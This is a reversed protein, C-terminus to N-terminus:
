NVIVNPCGNANITGIALLGNSGSSNPSSNQGDNDSLDVACSDSWDNVGTLMNLINNIQTSDRIINGSLGFRTFGTVRGRWIFDSFFATNNGGLVFQSFSSNMNQIDGTITNSGEISFSRLNTLRSFESLNGSIASLGGVRLVEISNPLSSLDGGITNNGGIEFNTITSPLDSLDGSITNVGDVRLWNFNAPLNSLDGTITTNNSQLTLRQVNAPLDNLDGSISHNPGNVEFSSISGTVLDSLDGVIQSNEGARFRILNVHIDTISGTIVSQGQSSFFSVNGPIQLVNGSVTNLGANSYNSINSSFDLVSGSTTNLGELRFTTLSTPLNSIEGTITNEGLVILEELNPPLNAVDGSVLNRSRVDISILSVPLESIDFDFRGNRIRIGRIDEAPVGEIKIRGSFNELYNHSVLFPDTLGSPNDRVITGDGWNLTWPNGSITEITIENLRSNNFGDESLNLSLFTFFYNETVEMSRIGAQNVHVLSISGSNSGIIEAMLSFAGNVCATRLPAESVGSTIEVDLGNQCTGTILHESFSHSSGPVPSVVALGNASPSRAVDFLSFEACGTSTVIIFFITLFRYLM